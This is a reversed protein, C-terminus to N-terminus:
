HSSSPPPPPRALLCSFFNSFIVEAQSTEEGRRRRRRAYHAFNNAELWSSAFLLWLGKKRGDKGGAWESAWGREFLKTSPPLFLEKKTPPPPPPLPFLKRRMRNTLRKKEGKRFFTRKKRSKRKKRKTLNPAGERLLRTLTSLPRLWFRNILRPYNGSVPRLCLLRPAKPATYCCHLLILPM